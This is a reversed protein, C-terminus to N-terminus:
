TITGSILTLFGGVIIKGDPQVALAEAQGNNGGTPSGIAFSNDLAGNSDLRAAIKREVGNITTFGGGILIKGDPQLVVTNVASNIESLNFSADVSGNANLRILSYLINNIRFNNGAVLVKGDPQVVIKLPAVLDSQSFPPPVFSMDVSGDANLRALGNRPVGAVVNFLGGILIKGDPQVAIATLRDQFFQSTIVGANLSLDVDGPAACVNPSFCFGIAMFLIISCLIQIMERNKM